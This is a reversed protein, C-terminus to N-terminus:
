KKNGWLKITYRDAGKFNAAGSGGSASALTKGDASFAFSRVTCEHGQSKSDHTTLLKPESPKSIDYRYLGTNISGACLISGDPSFALTKANIVKKDAGLCDGVLKSESPKSIDWIACRYDSGCSALYQKGSKNEPGISIARVDDVHATKGGSTEDILTKVMVPTAIKSVDWLTVHGGYCGSALYQKKDKRTPAFALTSLNKTNPEKRDITAKLKPTEPKSLDWLKITKDAGGSGTALTKGDPSFALHYVGSTHTGEYNEGGYTSLVKPQAPDTLDWIRITADRAGVAVLQKGGKLDPGFAVYEAEQSVGNVQMKLDINCVWTVKEADEVNWVRILSDHGFSALRKDGSFFHLNAIPTKHANPESKSSVTTLLQWEARATKEGAKEDSKNEGAKGPTDRDNPKPAPKSKGEQAILDRSPHSTALGLALSFCAVVLFPLKSMTGGEFSTKRAIATRASPLLVSKM